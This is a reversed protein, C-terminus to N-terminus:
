NLCYEHLLVNYITVYSLLALSLSIYIINCSSLSVYHMDCLIKHLRFGIWKNKLINVTGVVNYYM